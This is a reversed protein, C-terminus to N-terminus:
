ISIEKHMQAKVQADLQIMENYYPEALKYKGMQFYCDGLVSAVIEKDVLRLTPYQKIFRNAFALATDTQGKELYCQVTRSMIPFLYRDRGTILNRLAAQYCFLSKDVDALAHYAEGMQYYMAGQPPTKNEEMNTLAAQMYSISKQYNGKLFSIHALQSYSPVKNPDNNAKKFELDKLYYTEASDWQNHLEYIYGINRLISPSETKDGLKQYLELAKKYSSIEDAFTSDNDPLYSGLSRWWYAEAFSDNARKSEEIIQFFSHKGETLNGTTFQYKALLCLTKARLPRSNLSDSLRRAMAIFHYSTDLNPKLEGPKFLYREALMVQLRVKLAGATNEMIQVATPFKLEEAYANGLLFVADDYGAPFGIQSSLDRAQTSLLIASDLIHDNDPMKYLYLSDIALYLRVANTDKPSQQLRATFAAVKELTSQAQTHPSALLLLLIYATKPM